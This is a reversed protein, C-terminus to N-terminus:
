IKKVIPKVLVLHFFPMDCVIRVLRVMIDHVIVQEWKKAFIGFNLGQLKLIDM